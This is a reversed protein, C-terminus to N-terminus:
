EIDRRLREIEDKLEDIERELEYNSSNCENSIVYKRKYTGDENYKEKYTGDKISQLYESTTPRNRNFYETQEKWPNDNKREFFNNNQVNYMEGAMDGSENYKNNIQLCCFAVVYVVIICVIAKVINRYKNMVNLNLM